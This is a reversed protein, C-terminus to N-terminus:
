MTGPLATIAALGGNKSRLLFAFRGLHFGRIPLENAV